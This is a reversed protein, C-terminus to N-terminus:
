GASRFSPSSAAPVTSGDSPRFRESEHRLVQLTTEAVTATAMVATRQRQRHRRWEWSGGALAVLLFLTGMAFGTRIIGNRGDLVPGELALAATQQYPGIRALNIPVPQTFLSKYTYAGTTAVRHEPLAYLIELPEFLTTLPTPGFYQLRYNAKVEIQHNSISTSEMTLDRVEFLGHTEGQRPLNVLDLVVDPPTEIVLTLTIVDGIFYGYDRALEVRPLIPFREPSSVSSTTQNLGYHYAAFGTLITAMVAIGLMRLLKM